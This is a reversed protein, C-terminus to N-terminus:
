WSQAQKQADAEGYRKIGVEYRAIRGTSLAASHMPEVLSDLLYHVAFCRVFAVM